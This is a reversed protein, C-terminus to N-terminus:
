SVLEAELLEDNANKYRSICSYCKAAGLKLQSCTFGPAELGKQFTMPFSVPFFLDISYLHM